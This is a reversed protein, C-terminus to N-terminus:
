AGVNLLLGHPKVAASTTRYIVVREAPAEVTQLPAGLLSV